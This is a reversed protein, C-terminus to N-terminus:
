AVSPKTGGGGSMLWTEELLNTTFEFEGGRGLFGKFIVAKAETTRKGALASLSRFAGL